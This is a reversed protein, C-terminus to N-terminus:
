TFQVEAIQASRHQGPQKCAAAPSSEKDANFIKITCTVGAGRGTLQTIEGRETDLPIAFWYQLGGSCSVM